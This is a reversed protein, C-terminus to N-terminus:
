PVGIPIPNGDKDHTAEFVAKHVKEQLALEDDHAKQRAKDAKEAAKEEPTKEAM